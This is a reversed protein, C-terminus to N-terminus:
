KIIRISLLVINFQLNEINIKWYRELIIQYIIKEKPLAKEEQYIMLPSMQNQEFNYYTFKHFISEVECKENNKM